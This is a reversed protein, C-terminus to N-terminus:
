PTSHTYLSNKTVLLREFLGLRHHNTFFSCLRYLPADGLTPVISCMMQWMKEEAKSNASTRDDAARGCEGGFIFTLVSLDLHVLLRRNFALPYLNHM